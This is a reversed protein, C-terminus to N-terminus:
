GSMLPLPLDCSEFFQRLGTAVMLELVHMPIHQLFMNGGHRRVDSLCTVLVGLGTNDICTVDQMNLVFDFHGQTIQRELRAQLHQGSSFDIPGSLTIVHSQRCNTTFSPM